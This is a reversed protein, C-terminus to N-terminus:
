NSVREQVVFLQSLGKTITIINIPLPLFLHSIEKWVRVLWFLNGEARKAGLTIDELSCRIKRSGTYVIALKGTGAGIELQVLDRAKGRCLGFSFRSPGILLQVIKFAKALAADHLLLMQLDLLLVKLGPLSTASAPLRCGQSQERTDLRSGISHRGRCAVMARQHFVLVVRLALLLILLEAGLLLQVRLELVHPLSPVPIARILIALSDWPVDLILRVRALVVVCLPCVKISAVFIQICVACAISRQLAM